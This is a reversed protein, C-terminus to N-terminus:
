SIRCVKGDKNFLNLVRADGLVRMLSVSNQEMQSSLQRQKASDFASMGYNLGIIDNLQLAATRQLNATTANATRFNKTEIHDTKTAM